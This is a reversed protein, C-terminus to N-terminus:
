TCTFHTNMHSYALSTVHDHTVVKILFNLLFKFLNQQKKLSLTYKLIIMSPNYQFQSFFKVSQSSLLIKFVPVGKQENAYNESSQWNWQLHWAPSNKTFVQHLQNDSSATDILSLCLSNINKIICRKKLSVRDHHTPYFPNLPPGFSGVKAPANRWAERNGIPWEPTM